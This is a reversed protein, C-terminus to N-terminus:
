AFMDLAYRTTQDNVEATKVNADFSTRANMLSVMDSSLSVTDGGIANSNAPGAPASGTQAIRNATTNLSDVARNM